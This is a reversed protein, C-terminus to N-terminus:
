VLSHKNVEVTVVSDFSTRFLAFTSGVVSMNQLCFGELTSNQTDLVRVSTLEDVYWNGWPPPPPKGLRRRCLNRNGTMRVANCSYPHM